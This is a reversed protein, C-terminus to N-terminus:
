LEGELRGIRHGLIYAYNRMANAQSDLLQFDSESLGNDSSLFAMARELREEIEIKEKLMRALRKTKEQGQEEVFAIAENLAEHTAVCAEHHLLALNEGALDCGSLDITINM